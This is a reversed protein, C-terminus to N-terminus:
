GARVASRPTQVLDPSAINAEGSTKDGRREAHRASRLFSTALGALGLTQTIHASELLLARVHQSNAQLTSARERGGDLLAPAVTATRSESAVEAVSERSTRAKMRARLSHNVRLGGTTLTISATRRACPIDTSAKPPVVAQRRERVMVAEVIASLM